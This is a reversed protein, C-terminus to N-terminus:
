AAALPLPHQLSYDAANLPVVQKAILTNRNILVPGKLNVTAHGDQHLTVINLLWADEARTLGLGEVEAESIDPQYTDAVYGPEIVLFSLDPNEAMQLRMFPAEERSGLLVYKKVHEFGLIGGPMQIVGRPTEQVDQEVVNSEAGKM